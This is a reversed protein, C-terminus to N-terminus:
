NEDSWWRLVKLSFSELRQTQRFIPYGWILRNINYDKEWSFPWIHPKLFCAMKLSWFRHSIGKHISTFDCSWGFNYGLRKSTLDMPCHLHCSSVNKCILCSDATFRLHFQPVASIMPHNTFSQSIRSSFSRTHTHKSISYTSILTCIHYIYIYLIYVRSKMIILNMNYVQQVAQKEKSATQCSIGLKRTKYHCPTIHQFTWLGLEPWSEEVLTPNSLKQCFLAPDHLIWKKPEYLTMSRRATDM